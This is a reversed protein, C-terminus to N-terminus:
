HTKREFSWRTPTIRRGEAKPRTTKAPMAGATKEIDAWAPSAPLMGLLEARLGDGRRAAVAHLGRLSTMM